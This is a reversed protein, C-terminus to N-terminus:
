TSQEGAEPELEHVLPVRLFLLHHVLKAGLSAPGIGFHELKSFLLHVLLEEAVLLGPTVDHHDEGGGGVVGESAGLEAEETRM